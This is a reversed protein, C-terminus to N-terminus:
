ITPPFLKVASIFGPSCSRTVFLVQVVHVNLSSKLYTESNHVRRMSILTNSKPASFYKLFPLLCFPKCIGAVVPGCREVEARLIPSEFADLLVCVEAENLAAAHCYVVDWWIVANTFDSRESRYSNGDVM